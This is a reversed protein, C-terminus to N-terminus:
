CRLMHFAYLLDDTSISPGLDASERFVPSGSASPIAQACLLALPVLPEGVAVRLFIDRAEDNAAPLAALDTRGAEKCPCGPSDPRDPSDPDAPTKDPVRDASGRHCCSPAHSVPSTAPTTFRQTLRAFTCCCAAPGVAAVIMLYLAVALRLM